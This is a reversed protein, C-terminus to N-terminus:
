SMGGCGLVALNAADPNRLFEALHSAFPSCHYRLFAVLGSQTAGSYLARARDLYVDGPLAERFATDRWAISRESDPDYTVAYLPVNSLDLAALKAGAQRAMATAVLLNSYKYSVSSFLTYLFCRVDDLADCLWLSLALM